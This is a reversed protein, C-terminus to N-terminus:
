DCKDKLFQLLNENKQVGLKKRLRYRSKEVSPVSLHHLSAIEKSTLGIYVLSALRRDKETLQPFSQDLKFFFSSNMQRIQVELSRDEQNPDLHEMIMARVEAMRSSVNGKRSDIKEKLERLIENRNVLHMATRELEKNRFEMEAELKDQENKTQSLELSLIQRKMRANLFGVVLALCAIISLALILYFRVQAWQNEKELFKLELRHEDHYRQMAFSREVADMQTRILEKTHISRLSDAELQCKWAQHYNGKQYHLDAMIIKLKRQWSTFQGSDALAVMKNGYTIASDISYVHAIAKTLATGEELVFLPDSEDSSLYLANLLEISLDYEGMEVYNFALNQKSYLIGQFFNISEFRELSRTYYHQASDHNAFNRHVEGLMLESWGIEEAQGLQYSLVLASQALKLATVTDQLRSHFDALRYLSWIEDTKSSTRLAHLVAEQGVQRARFLMDMESYVVAAKEAFFAIANDNKDEKAKSLAIELHHARIEPPTDIKAYIAIANLYAEDNSWRSALALEPDKASQGLASFSSILGILLITLFKM